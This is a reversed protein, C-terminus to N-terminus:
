PGRRTPRRGRGCSPGCPASGSPAAARSRLAAPSCPSCARGRRAQQETARVAPLPVGLLGAALAPASEVLLRAALVAEPTAFAGGDPGPPLAAALRGVAVGALAVARDVAAQAAAAGAPAIALLQGLLEPRMRVLLAAAPLLLLGVKTAEVLAVAAVARSGAGVAAGLAWAAGGVLQEVALLVADSAAEYLRGAVETTGALDELRRGAARLAAERALLSTPARRSCRCRPM